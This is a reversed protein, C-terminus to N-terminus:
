FLLCFWRDLCDLVLLIGLYPYAFLKHAKWATQTMGTRLLRASNLLLAGAFYVWDLGASLPLALTELRLAVALGTIGLLLAERPKLVDIYARWRRSGASILM